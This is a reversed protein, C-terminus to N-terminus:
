IISEKKAINYDEFILEEEVKIQYKNMIQILEDMNKPNLYFDLSNTLDSIM